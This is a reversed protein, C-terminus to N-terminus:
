KCIHIYDMHNVSKTQTECATPPPSFKIQNQRFGLATDDYIVNAGGLMLSMM